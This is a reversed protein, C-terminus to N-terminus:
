RWINQHVNTGAPIHPIVTAGNNVTSQFTIRKTLDADSFDGKVKYGQASWVLDQALPTAPDELLVDNIAVSAISAGTILINYRGDAAYFAFMGTTDTKVSNGVSTVGNDSYLAAPQGTTASTVSVTANAVPLGTISSIVTNTYKQM